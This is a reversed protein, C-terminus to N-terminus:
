AGYGAQGLGDRVNRALTERYDSWQWAAATEAAHRRMAKLEHRHTACWELANALARTDAAPVILGNERHRVFDAAGARKTTIVPLGYALAETIVMGFGDCLTPFVLVDAKRYEEFIEVRPVTSFMRLSSPLNEVMRQPLRMTGYIELTAPKKRAFRKWASLLYHAGKHVSFSGAWLVRLPDGPRGGGYAAREDVRPAGLPIVRVKAVDFGAAAYTERTFVSNVIVVDALNWEQRRRESRRAQRDRYYSRTGDNLYPFKEFECEITGEIFDHQPSPVEYVRAVGRRQAERFSALASYEYGYIGNVDDLGVRAVEQDFRIIGHEWVFDVLRHDARIKTL